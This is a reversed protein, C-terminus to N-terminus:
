VQKAKAPQYQELRDKASASKSSNIWMAPNFMKQWKSASRVKSSYLIYDSIAKYFDAMNESGAYGKELNRYMNSSTEGPQGAALMNPKSKYVIDILHGDPIEHIDTILLGTKIGLNKSKVILGELTTENGNAVVWLKKCGATKLQQLIGDNLEDAKCCCEFSIAINKKALGSVFSNLWEPGSSLQWDLFRFQTPKVSKEILEIEKVLDIPSINRNIVVPYFIGKQKKNWISVYKKLDIKDYAPVIYGTHIKEKRTETFFVKGFYNKFAIDPVGDLFPNFPTNLTSILDPFSQFPHELIIMDTGLGILEETKPKLYKGWVILNVSKNSENSRIGSILKKTFTYGSEDSYIAVHKYKSFDTKSLNEFNSFTPDIVEHTIKADRFVASMCLVDTPIPPNNEVKIAPNYFHTHTLLISM